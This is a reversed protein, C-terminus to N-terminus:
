LVNSFMRNSFNKWMKIQHSGIFNFGEKIQVSHQDWIGELLESLPEFHRVKEHVKFFILGEQTVGLSTALLSLKSYDLNDLHEYASFAALCEIWSHSYLWELHGKNFQDIYFEYTSKEKIEEYINIGLSESFKYYLQEHSGYKGGFEEAINNVIIRKTEVDPAHNGMYWLFDHFHGRIHYFAKVFYHKQTENFESTLQTNFLPIKEIQEKYEADWQNLFNKFQISNSLTTKAENSLSVAIPKLTDTM